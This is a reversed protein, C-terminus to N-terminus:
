VAYPGGAVAAGEALLQEVQDATLGAEGLVQRTHEGLGPVTLVGTVETRSLRAMRGVTWLSGAAGAVPTRHVVEGTLLEPDAPLDVVSRGATAPVGAQGLLRLAQATSRSGLLGAVADGRGAEGAPWGGVLRGLAGVQGATRAAVRVWGDATPYFRDAPGSGPFDRGGRLAPPRGAFRVIEGSQLLASQGALSTGVRQGSGTRERARLALCAGLAAMAASAVDNVPITLFVPEADGGQATMMGSMAQLVPDFGPSAGLPGSDGFGTVSVSTVTPNAVRLSLYDIGLRELVGPRYNDIVVDATRVLRLFADHGAPTRLDLVVGRKGKHFGAFGLMLGRMGDGSPPEVKIVDAGLEALLSCAYTGAIISGLDLVRVGELPGGRHVQGGWAGVTLPGGLGERPAWRPGAGGDGVAPAPGRVGGPTDALVLPVGPMVVRGRAPDDLEVRMGIAALQPHDLWDDRDALAAAPLGAEALTRLWSDRDRTAFVGAVRELVWPVNQPYLMSVPDGGLRPDAFIDLLGLVDFARMFFNPTLCALFLWKGDACQYPRYFPVPGGSGGPQHVRPTGPVHVLSATAAEAVGHLGSVTVVQGLGSRQREVLAATVVTAAWIGQLYLLHPEVLDVPVDEVSAQSYAVGSAAALLAHSEGGGTWPTAGAPDLYPPTVLVVLRPYREALSAADWGTGALPLTSVALVDTGALQAALWDAGAPSAPDAVVSRKGRHWVASGPDTRLPHGNDPEVLLVEAGHDALIM